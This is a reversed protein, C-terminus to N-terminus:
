KAELTNVPEWDAGPPNAAFRRAREAFLASPPDVDASAAFAAAAEAFNRARWRRLGEAYAAAVRQREANVQGAEGLPELIKVPTTRGQVRIADLERWVITPGAFAMTMESAMISTAFYKNAGELRSALNVTDGMVTYNFRRRSGMNGVLAEGSSLGIRQGFRYGKFAAATRNLEELKDRCRLAAQVAHLAHSPDDLPAGFVAVIADGIYKDVFGGHEEIIETMASLYENMLAVLDHPSMKEAFSSFGAVDSFYVTIERQEGGLEPPKESGLMKEIVAPALYLAFSKRLLRKDKDAVMFRYAIMTIGGALGALVPDVLPLVLAHTFAWTAAATWALVAAAFVALAALPGLLLAAATSMAAFGLGVLWSQFRSLEALADGRLLNNIATAHIYVGSITDRAFEGFAAPAAVACRPARAGEVGTVLRKSTPKRDEVDLVTGILVVRDQFNQRFFDRDGKEACAHLDALSYTPIDEAGGDFNLTVTDPFLAAPVAHGAVSTTGDPAQEPPSGFARAALEVAMSPEVMDGGQFSLPVRRIIEDPDDYVNLARLNARRGAAIQMAAFPEVPVNSHQVRGLVVKGARAAGALSRLFERDFGKVRAGLTEDGFEVQSQEISTPFIIDFGVVKAGGDLVASMVRGIDRTWTVYPTDAFPPTRYTEEDIAVVVTPSAAPDHMPGHVRWRLWTLVDISLGDLADLAPLTVVAGAVAAIFMAALVDRRRPGGM